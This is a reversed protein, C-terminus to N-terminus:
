VELELLVEIPPCDVTEADKDECTGPLEEVSPQVEDVAPPKRVDSDDLEVDTSYREDAVPDLEESPVTVLLEADDGVEDFAAVTV